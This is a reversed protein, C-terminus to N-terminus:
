CDNTSSLRSVVMSRGSPGDTTIISVTGNSANKSIPKGKQNGFIGFGQRLPDQSSTKSQSGISHDLTPQMSGYSASEPYHGDRHTKNPDTSTFAKLGKTVGKAVNQGGRKWNFKKPQAKRMNVVQPAILYTAPDGDLEHVVTSGTYSSETTSPQLERGDISRNSREKTSHTYIGLGNVPPRSVDLSPGANAKYLEQIQHVLQNNLEALQANKASLQEFEQASKDRLQTLDAVEEILENRHQTLDEIQPAFSDKLKQLSEAFERLVLNSMGGLDLPEESKKASAIHETLVELERVVIEKQTDLVVMTSRKERLETNMQRITSKAELAAELEQLKQEKEVTKQRERRLENKLWMLEEKSDPTSPTPSSIEQGFAGSPAAPLPSKPWKHERSLRTGRDSYSRAHRVSNSVRRLFSAHDQPDEHGLIRALDEDMSFEGGASYRPLSPSVPFDGNRSTESKYTSVSASNSKHSGIPPQPPIRPAVFSDVSSGSAVAVRDRARLPVHPIEAASGSSPIDSAKSLARTGNPHAPNYGATLSPPLSASKDHEAHDSSPVIPQQGIHGAGVERRSIHPKSAGSKVLSDHRQPLSQVQTSALSSQSTPSDTSGPDHSKLDQLTLPSGNAKNPRVSEPSDCIPLMAPEDKVQTIASAPASSSKSSSLSVDLSPSLGESRSSRTSGSKKSKPVEQLMFKGNRAEGNPRSRLDIPPDRPKEHTMSGISVPPQVHDKRKRINEVESPERGIEQYAIHPSSPQSSHRSDRPSNPTSSIRNTEYDHSAVRSPPNQNKTTFYDRSSPKPDSHQAKVITDAHSDFKHHRTLPSPGPAPNPDLAMPIFFEEGNGSIDSRQSISSHRNSKYTTSPLMLNETGRYAELTARSKKEVNGKPEEDLAAPSRERQTSRSSNSRSHTPRKPPVRTQETPTGSHSSSRSTPAKKHSIQPLETPTDSYGDSALSENDPSFATRDIASPPLSPLSKDLLM